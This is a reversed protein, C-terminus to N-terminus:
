SLAANSRTRPSIAAKRLRRPIAGENTMGTEPVPPSLKAEGEPFIGQYLPGVSM